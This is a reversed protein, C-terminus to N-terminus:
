VTLTVTQRAGGEDRAGGGNVPEPLELIERLTLSASGLVWQQIVDCDALKWARPFHQPQAPRLPIPHPTKCRFCDM